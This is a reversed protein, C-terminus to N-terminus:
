GDTAQGDSTTAAPLDDAWAFPHHASGTAGWYDLRLRDGRSLARRWQAFLARRLWRRPLRSLLAVIM